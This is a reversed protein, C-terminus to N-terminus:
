NILIIKYMQYKLNPTFKYIIPATTISYCLQNAYDSCHSAPSQIALNQKTTSTTVEWNVATNLSALEGRNLEPPKIGPYLPALPKLQAIIKM